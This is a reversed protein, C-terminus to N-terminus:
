AGTVNNATGPYRQGIALLVRWTKAGDNAVPPTWTGRVDGTTTTAAVRVGPVLLGATGAVEVYGNIAGSTAFTTGPVVQLRGGKTIVTTASYPTTPTDSYITGPAASNAVEVSLGTVDTTGVQVTVPGGTGVASQVIVYLGNVYGNVPSVLQAATPALVDTQNIFFPVQTAGPSIPHGDQWEALVYGDQPVFVPLGLIDTTGVFPSNSTNASSTISTVTKFAKKGNVQTTGNLTIAESMPRGYVDTGTITLVATDAGGSDVSLCRPVDLTVSGGSALAGNLTMSAGGSVNQAAAIGDADLAIPAGLNAMYLWLDGTSAFLKARVNISQSSGGITDTESNRYELPYDMQSRMYPEQLQLRFTAGQPWAAATGNTVTISAAGYTLTFDVPYFYANGDITLKHAMADTFTGPNTGTPYSVTFTGAAAVASALTGSVVKFSDSQNDSYSM